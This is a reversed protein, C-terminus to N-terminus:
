HSSYHRELRTLLLLAQGDDTAACISGPGGQSLCLIPGVGPYDLGPSISYVPMVSGDENFLAYTKMGDVVGVTGLTLTAAHRDTQLGHGAAEVRSSSGAILYSSLLPGM